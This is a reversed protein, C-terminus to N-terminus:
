REKYPEWLTRVKHSSSSCRFSHAKSSASSAFPISSAVVLTAPVACPRGQSALRRPDLMCGWRHRHIIAGEKM